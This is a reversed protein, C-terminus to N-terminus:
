GALPEQQRDTDMTPLPLWELCRTNDIPIVRHRPLIANACNYIFMINGDGFVKERWSTRRKSSIRPGDLRRAALAIDPVFTEWVDLRCSGWSVELRVLVLSVPALIPILM